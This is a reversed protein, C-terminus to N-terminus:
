ARPSGPDRGMELRIYRHHCLRPRVGRAIEVCAWGLCSAALVESISHVGLYVLSAAVGVAITVGLAPVRRLATGTLFTTRMMHGSPFGYPSSLGIMGLIQQGLQIIGDQFILTVLCVGAAGLISWVFARGRRQDRLLLLVLGVASLGLIVEPTGFVRQRQAIPRMLTLPPGPHVIVGQLILTLLSVGITGAALWLFALGRRKDHFLLLAFAIAVLGLIIEPDGLFALAAAPVDAAPAARQFWVTVARDAQATFPLGVAVALTVFLALVIAVHLGPMLFFSRLANNVEQRTAGRTARM